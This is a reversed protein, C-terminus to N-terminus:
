FFLKLKFNFTSSSEKVSAESTIHTILLIIHLLQLRLSSYIKRFIEKSNKELEEELEFHCIVNVQHDSVLPKSLFMIVIIIIKNLYLSAKRYEKNSSGQEEKRHKIANQLISQKRNNAVHWSSTLKTCVTSLTVLHFTSKQLLFKHGAPITQTLM